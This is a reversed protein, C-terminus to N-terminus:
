LIFLVGMRPRGQRIAVVAMAQVWEGPLPLARTRPVSKVWNAYLLQSTDLHKRCRPYLPKLGCIANAAKYMPEDEVYLENICKSLFM